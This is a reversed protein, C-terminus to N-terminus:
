LVYVEFYTSLVQACPRSEIGSRQGRSGHHASTRTRKEGKEKEKESREREKEGRETERM